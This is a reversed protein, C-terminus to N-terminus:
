DSHPLATSGPGIHIHAATAKGPIAHTFAYYPIKRSQLYRRLWVGERDSPDVAVDIRGRHDFGLTRHLESEGDASIPLAHKFETEFALTLPKLDRAEDFVAVGEYHEMGDPGFTEYAPSSTESTASEAAQAKFQVRSQAWYLDLQRHSLELELSSLDSTPAIGAALLNKHREIREEQRAVRRQAAALRDEESRDNVDASEVATTQGLIAGDKADALDREAEELRIPAEAGHEVLDKIRQVELAALAIRRDGADHTSDLPTQCLLPAPSVFPVLWLLAQFPLIVARFQTM